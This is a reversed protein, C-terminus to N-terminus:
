SITSRRIVGTGLGDRGANRRNLGLPITLRNVNWKLIMTTNRPENGFRSSGKGEWKVTMSYTFGCLLAALSFPFLALATEPERCRPVGLQFVLVCIEGGCGM